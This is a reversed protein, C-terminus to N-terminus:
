GLKMPEDEEDESNNDEELDDFNGEDNEEGDNDHDSSEGASQLADNGEVSVSDSDDDETICM